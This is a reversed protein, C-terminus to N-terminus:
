QRSAPQAPAAVPRHGARSLLRMRLDEVELLCYKYQNPPEKDRFGAAEEVDTVLARRSAAMRIETCAVQALRDLAMLGLGLRASFM